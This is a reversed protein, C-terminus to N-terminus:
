NTEVIFIMPGISSHTKLKFEVTVTEQGAPINCDLKYLDLNGETPVTVTVGKIGSYWPQATRVAVKYDSLTAGFQETYSGGESYFYVTASKNIKFSVLCDSNGSKNQDVNWFDAAKADVIQAGVLGAPVYTYFYYPEGGTQTRVVKDYEPTTTDFTFSLTPNEGTTWAPNALTENRMTKSYSYNETVVGNIKATGTLTIDTVEMIKDAPPNEGEDDGGGPTEGDDPIEGSDPTYLGEKLLMIPGVTRLNKLNVEFTASEAGPPVICNLAYLQTTGESPPTTPTAAPTYSIADKYSIKYGSAIAGDADAYQSSTYYYLTANKNLTFKATCVTNNYANEQVNWFDCREVDFIQAGILEDPVYTYFHYMDGKEIRTVKNNFDTFTTTIYNGNDDTDWEPNKLLDSRLTKNYVYNEKVVGDIKATGMFTIDTVMLDEIEYDLIYTKQAGGRAVTNLIINKNEEDVTTTVKTGMDRCVAIVAGDDFITSGRLTLKHDPEKPDFSKVPKDNIYLDYIEADNSAFDSWRALPHMQDWGGWLYSAVTLEGTADSPIEIENNLTKMPNASFDNETKADIKIIEGDLMLCTIFTAENIVMGTKKLELTAKLTQGPIITTAPTKNDTDYYYELSVVRFADATKEDAAFVHFGSTVLIVVTLLIAILRKM